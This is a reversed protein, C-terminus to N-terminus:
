SCRMFRSSITARTRALVGLGPVDGDDAAAGGAHAYGDVGGRAAEAHNEDLGVVEAFAGAAAAGLQDMAAHAVELLPLMGSTM